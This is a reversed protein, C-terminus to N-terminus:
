YSYRLGGVFGAGDIQATPVWPQEEPWLAWTILMAAASAGAVSFGVWSRSGAALAKTEYEARDHCIDLQSSLTCDLTTQKELKALQSEYGRQKVLFGVGLGVGGLALVGQVGLAIYFAPEASDIPGAPGAVPAAASTTRRRPILAIDIVKDDGPRAEFRLIFDEYGPASVLVERMGPDIQIADRTEGLGREQGDLYWRMKPPQRALVLRMQPFNARLNAISAGVVDAVDPASAGGDLLAQVRHYEAMADHWRSQQEICFALHFRLGPTEKLETARLLLRECERWQGAAQAAEAQEFLRQAEIIHAPVSPEAASLTAYGNLGAVLAITSPFRARLKM